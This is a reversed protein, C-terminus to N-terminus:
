KLKKIELGAPSAWSFSEVNAKDLQTVFAKAEKDSKFPGVLLRNTGKQTATWASRGAFLKPARSRIREYQGPLVTPSGAHAIQVWSRAPEKPPKSPKAVATKSPAPEPKKAPPRAEAAPRTEPELPISSKAVEPTIAVVDDSAASLSSVLTAVDAFNRSSGTPLPAAAPEPVIPPPAAEALVPATGPSALTSAALPTSQISVTSALASPPAAV